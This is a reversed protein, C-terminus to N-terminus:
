FRVRESVKEVGLCVCMCGLIRFHFLILIFIFFHALHEAIIGHGAPLLLWYTFSSASIALLVQRQMEYASNRGTYLM